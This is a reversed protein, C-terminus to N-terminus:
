RVFGGGGGGCSARTGPAGFLCHGLLAALVCATNSVSLCGREREGSKFKLEGNPCM